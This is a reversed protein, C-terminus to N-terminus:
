RKKKAPVRQFVAGVARNESVTVSCAGRGRCAGSWRVFRWGKTPGVRLRVVADADVPRSCRRACSLALAPATVRGRGTVSITLRFQSPGFIAEVTKVTDMTVTCPERGTCAGGWGVLRSGPGAQAVLQVQSGTDFLVSCAAPCAIGVPNSAVRDEGTLQRVALALASPPVDARGLWASDQIDFWSGSHGYYDDRGVDLVLDDFRTSLDPYMLDQGSDCPHGQDNPCVHPAGAPLAGLQHVLEHTAVAAQIDGAGVDTFCGRLWVAAVSGPGGSTTPGRFATGCVNIPEGLPGDYYVLYKKSPEALGAASLSNVVNRLREDLGMFFTSPQPFRVVSVDIQGAMTTCGAFAHIDFRPARSPDQRRWWADIAGLDTVIRHVYAGFQDPGDSPVAYVVHVTNGGRLDPKRDATAVDTGCWRVPTAAAASPAMPGLRSSLGEAQGGSSAHGALASAALGPVAALLGVVVVRRVRANVVPV